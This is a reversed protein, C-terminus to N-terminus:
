LSPKGYKREFRKPDNKQSPIRIGGDLRISEGNLYSNDLIHVVLKAFEYDHGLRMPFVGAQDIQKQGWDGGLALGPTNMGGPQISM